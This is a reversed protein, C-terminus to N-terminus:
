EIDLCVLNDLFFIWFFFYSSHHSFGLLTRQFICNSCSTPTPTTLFSAGITLTNPIALRSVFRPSCYYNRASYSGLTRFLPTPSEKWGTLDPCEAQSEQPFFLLQVAIPFRPFLQALQYSCSFFIIRSFLYTATGQRRRRIRLENLSLIFPGPLHVSELGSNVIAPSLPAPRGPGPRTAHSSVLCHSDVTAPGFFFLQLFPPNSQSQSLSFFRWSGSQQPRRLPPFSSLVGGARWSQFASASLTFRSLLEGSVETVKKEPLQRIRNRMGHCAHWPPNLHALYPITFSGPIFLQRYAFLVHGVFPVPSGQNTGLHPELCEEGYMEILDPVQSPVTRM